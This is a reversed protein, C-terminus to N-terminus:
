RDDLSGHSRKPEDGMRAHNTRSFYFGFILFNSSSMLTFAALILNADSAGVFVGQLVVVAAVVNTLVAVFLALNRQTKEWILNLDRQGATRLDQEATTKSAVNEATDLSKTADAPLQAAEIKEDIKEDVRHDILPKDPM